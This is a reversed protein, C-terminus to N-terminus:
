CAEYAVDNLGQPRCRGAILADIRRVREANEKAHRIPDLTRPSMLMAILSVYQQENLAAFPRGYYRRAADAFGIVPRGGQQGFYAYNVYAELQDHKSMAPDLVFRAILSQEIKAFGPQFRDFYFRKVLAQTITTQGQGPTSFDVGHHTYFGPDEVRLLIAIRQPPISALPIERTAASALVGPTRAHARAVAITEYAALGALLVLPVAMIAIRKRAM